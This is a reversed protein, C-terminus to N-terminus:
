VRAYRWRGFYRDLEDANREQLKRFDTHPLESRWRVMAQAAPRAGVADIWRSLAARGADGTAPRKIGRLWPWAAIDAISYEAGGLWLSEALRADLM